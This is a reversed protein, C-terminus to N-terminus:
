ELAQMLKAVALAEPDDEQYLGNIVGQRDDDNRNQSLKFSGSLQDVRIDIGVIHDLLREIFEAPADDLSWANARDQEFRDTLSHLVEMLFAQDRHTRLPGRVQAMSYNWTPVVRGHTQKSAYWAPSVYANPGHFVAVAHLEDAAAFPNGAAVHGRLWAVGNDDQHWQLPVPQAILEGHHQAVVTALPHDHILQRLAQRDSSQFAKGTFM